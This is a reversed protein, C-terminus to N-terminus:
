RAARTPTGTAAGHRRFAQAQSAAALTFALMLLGLPAADAPNLLGAAYGGFLALPAAFALPSRWGAWALAIVIVIGMVTSAMGAVAMRREGLRLVVRTAFCNGAIYSLPAIMVVSLVFARERGLRTYAAAMERLWHTGAAVPVRRNTLVRRAAVFLLGALVALLVFNTQWGLHVHLQGGIVTAMPPCLGMAMGAYAMVRSREPGEFLDQVAAAILGHSATTPEADPM